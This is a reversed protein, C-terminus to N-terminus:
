FSCVTFAYIYLQVYNNYGEHCTDGQYGVDCGSPCSGDTINCVDDHVCHGCTMNCNGGYTGNSCASFYCTNIFTCYALCM